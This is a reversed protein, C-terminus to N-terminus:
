KKAMENLWKLTLVLLALSITLGVLFIALAIPSNWDWVDTM